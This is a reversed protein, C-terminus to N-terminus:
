DVGAIRVVWQDTGHTLGYDKFQPFVPFLGQFAQDFASSERGRVRNWLEAAKVRLYNGLPHRDHNGPCVFYNIGLSDLEARARQLLTLDNTNAIDGTVLVLKFLPQGNETQSLHEKLTSWTEAQNEAGFHLDSIHAIRITGM